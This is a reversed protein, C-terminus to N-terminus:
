LLEVYRGEQRNLAMKIEDFTLQELYFNCATRAFDERYHADSSRIYNYGKLYKNQSIFPELECRKSVELSDVKLDFPIFGLQSLISNKNKDIHAPIFIGGLSHVFAEVQDISQEIASILLYEEEGLIQENKDVWLQYGFKEPDNVIPPLYKTLYEQLARLSEEGNVFALCHVEEKTCVEAGTLIFLGADRALECIEACQRTSNHDSVGIISYGATVAAEVYFSPTMEIDGCPSLVTHNHLDGKYPKLM